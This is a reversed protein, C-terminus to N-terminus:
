LHSILNWDLLYWDKFIRERKHLNLITEHCMLACTCLLTMVCEEAAELKHKRGASKNACKNKQTIGIAIEHKDKIGNM